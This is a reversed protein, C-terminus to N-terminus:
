IEGTSIRRYQTKWQELTDEYQLTQVSEEIMTIEEFLQLEMEQYLTSRRLLKTYEEGNMYQRCAYLYAKLMSPEECIQFATEYM